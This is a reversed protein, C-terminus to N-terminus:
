ARRRPARPEYRRCFVVYCAVGGAALLAGVAAPCHYTAPRAEDIPLGGLWAGLANGLNFALQVMAGGLLEGGESYRLLLLQQPASVAFLCGCTLMMLPIHAWPWQATLAILLLCGFIAVDIGRGTRGPGHVDSLRGGALNGVVMGAGALVMVGTMWGVDVGALRVLTPTIYSYWCFVGGNGLVTAAVLLWPAASRLFRFEGRVGHDPLAPLVPIWRVVAALTAVGCLSAFAFVLRWSFLGTLLTGLPIGLLNAVTMGSCMVAVAFTSKGRPSVRDAIIAGVGFYAGHPLGGVFRLAMMLWFPWRSGDLAGQPVPCAAMAAASVAMLGCLVCLIRKLPWKRWFVAVFPAGACVGLAYASILYGAESISVRFDAALYPLIGMLVYEAMGLCFTGLALAVLTKKMSEVKARGFSTGGGSFRPLPLRKKPLGYATRVDLHRLPAARRVNAVGIQCEATGIRCRSHRWASPVAPPQM